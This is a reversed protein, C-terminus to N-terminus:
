SFCDCPELVHDTDKCELPGCVGKPRLKQGCCCREGPIAWDIIIHVRSHDGNNVVSHMQRNNVEWIEGEKLNKVEDGILFDVKDNTIIPIHIRHSHSLTYLNDVHPAIDGGSADLKVINIRIVYGNGHKRKLRQYKINRNYYVNIKQIIPELVEKFQEYRPWITPNKHRYDRDFILSITHTYKHVDYHKQRWDEENWEEHTFRLIRERIASIDHTGLKRFSGEFNM